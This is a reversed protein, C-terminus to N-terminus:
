DEFLELIKHIEKNDTTKEGKLVDLLLDFFDNDAKRWIDRISVMEKFIHQINTLYEDYISPDNNFIANAAIYASEIAYNLGYGLFPDNLLAAGGLFYVNHYKNEIIGSIGNGTFYSQSKITEKHNEKIFQNLKESSDLTDIAGKDYVICYFTENGVSGSYVYGGPAYEKDFYIKAHPIYNDKETEIIIGTGYFHAFIEEPIELKKRMESDAGDCIIINESSITYENDNSTISISEITNDTKSISNISSNLMCQVQNNQLKSYIQKELSDKTSGRKFYLDEISSDLIFKNSPSLWESINSKKHEKINLEQLINSIRHGETIDYKTILDDLNEKKEILILKYGKKSLIDSAILGAPGAGIVLVDCKVNM